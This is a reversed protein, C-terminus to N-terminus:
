DLGGGRATGDSGRIDGVVGVIEHSRGDFELVRGIADGDPWLSRALSASVIAVLPSGPQDQAGFERGALLAVGLARFLGPSVIQELASARADLSRGTPAGLDPSCVDASWE